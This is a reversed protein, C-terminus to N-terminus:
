TLKLPMIKSQFANVNRLRRKLLENVSAYNLTEEKKNNKTRAKTLDHYKDIENKLNIQEEYLDYLTIIGNWIHMEFSQIIKIKEFDYPM